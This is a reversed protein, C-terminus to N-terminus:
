YRVIKKLKFEQSMKIIKFQVELSRQTFYSTHKFSCFGLCDADTPCEKEKDPISKCFTIEVVQLLSTQGMQM